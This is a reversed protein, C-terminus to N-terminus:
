IDADYFTFTKLTHTQNRMVCASTDITYNDM